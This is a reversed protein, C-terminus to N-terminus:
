PRSCSRRGSHASVSSLRATNASTTAPELRRRVDAPRVARAQGLPIPQRLRERLGADLQGPLARLGRLVRGMGGPAKRSRAAILTAAGAAAQPSARGDLDARLLEDALRGAVDPRPTKAQASAQEVFRQLADADRLAPAGGSYGAPPASGLWCAYVPLGAEGLRDRQLRVVALAASQPATAQEGEAAEVEVGVVAATDTVAVLDLLPAPGTGSGALRVGTLLHLDRPYAALLAEILRAVASSPARAGQLARKM